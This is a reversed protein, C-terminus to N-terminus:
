IRRRIHYVNWVSGYQPYEGTQEVSELIGGCADVKEAFWAPTRKYAGAQYWALDDQKELEGASPEHDFDSSQIAFVGDPKLARIGYWLHEGLTVDEIHQAVLFETILDYTNEPLDAPDLYFHDVVGDVVKKAEEAVDMADLRDVAVRAWKEFYGFGVGINLLSHIGLMENVRLQVM